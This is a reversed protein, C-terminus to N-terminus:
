LSPTSTITLNEFSTHMEKVVLPLDDQAVRFCSQLLHLGRKVHSVFEKLIFRNFIHFRSCLYIAVLVWNGGFISTACDEM